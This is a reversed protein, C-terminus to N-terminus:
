HDSENDSGDADLEKAMAETELRLDEFLFSTHAEEVHMNLIAGTALNAVQMQLAVVM